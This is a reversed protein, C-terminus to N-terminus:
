MPLSGGVSEVGDFFVDFLAAAEDHCPAVHAELADITGSSVLSGGYSVYEGDFEHCMIVSAFVWFSDGGGFGGGM